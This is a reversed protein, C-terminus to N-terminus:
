FVHTIPDKTIRNADSNWTELKIKLAGKADKEWITLYKGTEEEINSMDPITFSIKFRGIEIIKDNCLMLHLMHTEYTIVKSGAAQMELTVERIAEIGELINGNNPMSIADESYFSMSKEINGEILAQGIEQNLKEIVPIWEETSQAYAPSLGVLTLIALTHITVLNKMFRKISQNKSFRKM